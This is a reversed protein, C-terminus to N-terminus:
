EFTVVTLEPIYEVTFSHDTGNPRTILNEGEDFRALIEDGWERDATARLDGKLFTHAAYRDTLM